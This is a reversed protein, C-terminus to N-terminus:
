IPVILYASCGGLVDAITFSVLFKEYLNKATDSEIQKKAFFLSVLLLLAM